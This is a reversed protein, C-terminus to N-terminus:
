ACDRIYEDFAPNEQEYQQYDPSDHVRYQQLNCRNSVKNFYYAVCVFPQNNNCANQCYARDKGYIPSMGPHNFNWNERVTYTYAYSTCAKFICTSTVPSWSGDPLCTTTNRDVAQNDFDYGQECSLTTQCGVHSCTSLVEMNPSSLNFDGCGTIVCTTQGSKLPVCTSLPPCVVNSCPNPLVMSFQSKDIYDWTPESVPLLSDNSRNMECTLTERNFNTSKCTQSNLCARGCQLLGAVKIERFTEGSMRKNKTTTLQHLCIESEVATNTVIYIMLLMLTVVSARDLITSVNSNM